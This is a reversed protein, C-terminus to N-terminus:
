ENSLQKMERKIQRSYRRGAASGELSVTAELLRDALLKLVGAELEGAAFGRNLAHSTPRGVEGPRCGDVGSLLQAAAALTGM